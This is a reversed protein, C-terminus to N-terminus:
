PLIPQLVRDITHIVGNSAQVNVLKILSPAVGVQVPLETIKVTGKEIKFTQATAALTAITADTTATSSTWSTASSSTLAGNSIHYRLIKTINAATANAGTLFGGTATAITFASNLPAFVTLSPNPNTTANFVPNSTANTLTALIASQDGYAGTATSSLVTVLTSLNPNAKALSVLTPLAMVNSIEHIVGNSVYNDGSTVTAGGNAAGGNLLIGSSRNVFLSLTSTGYTALTNTYAGNPLDFSQTGINIVHYQLTKTLDAIQVTTMADISAESISAASFAVDNPAFLTISGPNKFTNVLNTKTLAKILITYNGKSQLYELATPLNEKVGSKEDCSFTFLTLILLALITTLKKM